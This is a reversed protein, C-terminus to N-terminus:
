DNRKLYQLVVLGIGGVAVTAGGGTKLADLTGGGLLGVVTFALLGVLTSVLAVIALDRGPHHCNQSTTQTSAM